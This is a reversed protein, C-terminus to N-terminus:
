LVSVEHEGPFLQKLSTVIEDDGEDSSDSDDAIGIADPPGEKEEMPTSETAKKMFM